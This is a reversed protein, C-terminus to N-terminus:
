RAEGQQHKLARKTLCGINTIFNYKESDASDIFGNILEHTKISMVEGFLGNLNINMM